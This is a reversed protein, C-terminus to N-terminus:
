YRAYWSFEQRILAAYPEVTAIVGNSPVGTLIIVGVAGANTADETDRVNVYHFDGDMVWLQNLATTICGYGGVNGSETSTNFGGYACYNSLVNYPSAVLMVVWSGLYLSDWSRSNGPGKLTSPWPWSNTVYGIRVASWDNNPEGIPERQWMQMNANNARTGDTDNLCYGVYSPVICLNSQHVVTGPPAAPAATQAQAPLAFGAAIAAAALPLSLVRLM